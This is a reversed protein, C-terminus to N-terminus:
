HVQVHLGLSLALWVASAHGVVGTPEIALPVRYPSWQALVGIYPSFTARGLATLKADAQLGPIWRATGASQSRTPTWQLETLSPGFELAVGMGVMQGNCRLAVDLARRSQNLPLNGVDFAGSRTAAIGGGFGLTGWDYILRLQGGWEAAAATGGVGTGLLAGLELAFHNVEPESSAHKGRAATARPEPSAASNGQTQTDPRAPAPPQDEGNIKKSTSEESKGAPHRALAIFVAATRAREPCNRTRDVYTRQDQDFAVTFQKGEDVVSIQTREQETLAGEDLLLELADLTAERSPCGGQAAGAVSPWQGIAALPVLAARWTSCSATRRM